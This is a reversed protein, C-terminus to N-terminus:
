GIYCIEFWSEGHRYKCNEGFRCSGTRHYDICLQRERILKLDCFSCSVVSKIRKRQKTTTRQVLVDTDSEM